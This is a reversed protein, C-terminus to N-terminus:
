QLRRGLAKAEYCPGSSFTALSIYAMCWRALRVDEPCRTFVDNWRMRMHQEIDYHALTVISTVPDVAVLGMCCEVVSAPNPIEDEILELPEACSDLVLAIGMAHCLAEATLPEQAATLLALTRMALHTRAIAQLGVM